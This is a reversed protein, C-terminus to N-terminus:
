NNLIEEAISAPVQAYHDFQMSYTARGQTKSRLQTAYGFMSSLPVHCRIIQTGGRPELGQVKGRRGNLDGMVDGLYEEPTLVEVFMIPELLVLGAKHCAEKIAM